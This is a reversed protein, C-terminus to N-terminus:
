VVEQASTEKEAAKDEDSSSSTKDAAKDSDTKEPAEKEEETDESTNKQLSVYERDGVPKLDVDLDFDEDETSDSDDGSCTGEEQCSGKCFYAIVAGIATGVAALIM